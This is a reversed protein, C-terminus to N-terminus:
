PSKQTEEIKFSKESEDKEYIIGFGEHLGVHDESDSLDANPYVSNTKLCINMNESSSFTQFQLEELPKLKGKIIAENIEKLNQEAQEAIQCNKLNEERLFQIEKDKQANELKLLEIACFNQDNYSQRFIKDDSTSERRLTSM